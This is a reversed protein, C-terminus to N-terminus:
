GHSFQWAALQAMRIGLVAEPLGLGAQMLDGNAVARDREAGVNPIDIHLLWLSIGANMLIDIIAYAINELDSPFMRGRAWLFVLASVYTALSFFFKRARVDTHTAMQYTSRAIFFACTAGLWLKQFLDWEYSGSSDYIDLATIIGYASFGTSLSGAAHTVFQGMWLSFVFRLESGSLGAPVRCVEFGARGEVSGPQWDDPEDNALPNALHYHKCTSKGFYGLAMILYWAASYLTIMLPLIHFRRKPGQSWTIKNLSILFVMVMIAFTAWLSVQKATGDHFPEAANALWDKPDPDLKASLISVRLEDSDFQSM